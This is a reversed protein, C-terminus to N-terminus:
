VEVDDFFLSLVCEKIKNFSNEQKNIIELLKERNQSTITNMFKEFSERLSNEDNFVLRFFRIQMALNIDIRSVRGLSLLLLIKLNRIERNDRHIRNQFLNENFNESIKKLCIYNRSFFELYFDFNL